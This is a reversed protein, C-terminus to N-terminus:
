QLEHGGDPEGTRALGPKTGPADSSRGAQESEEWRARMAETGDIGEADTSARSSM